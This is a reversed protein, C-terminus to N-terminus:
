PLRSLPVPISSKQVIKGYISMAAMKTMGGLGFIYVNEGKQSYKPNLYFQGLLKM